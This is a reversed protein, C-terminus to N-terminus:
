PSCSGLTVLSDLVTRSLGDAVSSASAVPVTPTPTPISATRHWLFLAVGTQPVASPATPRAPSSCSPATRSAPVAMRVQHTAAARTSMIVKRM